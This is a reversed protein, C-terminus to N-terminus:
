QQDTLSQKHAKGKRELLNYTIKAALNTLEKEGTFREKFLVKGSRNVLEVEAILKDGNQKLSGQLVASALDRRALVDIRGQTFGEKLLKRLEEHLSSDGFPDIYIQEISALEIESEESPSLTRTDIQTSHNMRADMRKQKRKSNITAVKLSTVLEQDVEKDKLIVPNSQLKPQEAVKKVQNDLKQQNDSSNFYLLLALCIIVTAVVSNTALRFFLFKQQNLITLLSLKKDPLIRSEQYRVDIIFNRNNLNFKSLGVTFTVQQGTELTTCYIKRWGLLRELWSFEVDESNLLLAALLSLRGNAHSMIKILRSDENLNLRIARTPKTYFEKKREDDVFILIEEVPNPEPIFRTSLGNIAQKVERTKNIM